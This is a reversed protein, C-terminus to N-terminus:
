NNDLGSNEHYLSTGRTRHGTRSDIISNEIGLTEDTTIMSQKISEGSIARIADITEPVTVDKQFIGQFLRVRDESKQFTNEWIVNGFISGSSSTIALESLQGGTEDYEEPVVNIRNKEKLQSLQFDSKESLKIDVSHMHMTTVPSKVAMTHINLDPVLESVDEAHHSPQSTSRVIDNVPGKHPENPDAARRILTVNIYQIESQINSVLRSIGTTNCSVVRLYDKEGYNTDDNVAIYTNYSEDAISANEGGQFIAKTNRNKYLEKNKEGYGSPSVDVIIDSAKTLENLTGHTELDSSELKDVDEDTVGYLDHKDQITRSALNPTKKAVGILNMDPQEGVANAVRRGITGFGALGVKKM